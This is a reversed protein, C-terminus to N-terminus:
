ELYRLNAPCPPHHGLQAHRLSRARVRPVGRSRVGGHSTAFDDLRQTLKCLDLQGDTKGSMAVENDNCSSFGPTRSWRSFMYYIDGEHVHLKFRVGGAYHTTNDDPIFLRHFIWNGPCVEGHVPVNPTLALATDLTILKFRVHSSACRVVVSM